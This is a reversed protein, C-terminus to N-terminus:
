EDHAGRSLRLRPIASNPRSRSMGDVDVDVDVGALRAM